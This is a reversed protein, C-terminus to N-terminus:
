IDLAQFLFVDIPNSSLFRLTRYLILLLLNMHDFGGETQMSPSM